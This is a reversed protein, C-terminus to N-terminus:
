QNLFCFGEALSAFGAAIFLGMLLWKVARRFRRFVFFNVTFATILIAFFVIVPWVPRFTPSHQYDYGAAGWIGFGLFGIGVVGGATGLLFLVTRLLIQGGSPRSPASSYSLVAPPPPPIEGPPLQSDNM